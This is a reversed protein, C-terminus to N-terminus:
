FSRLPSPFPVPPSRSSTDRFWAELEEASHEANWDRQSVAPAAYAVAVASHLSPSHRVHCLPCCQDAWDKHWHLLTFGTAILLLGVLVLIVYSSAGLPRQDMM